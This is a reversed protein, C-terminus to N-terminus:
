EQKFAEQLEEYFYKPNYTSKLSNIYENELRKSEMEQVTGSVEPKAEEFTKLRSPEKVNLKFISYGAGNKFPASFDGPNQLKDAERSLVSSNIDVLGYNGAKTKFGPRETYKIAVSDFNEGSQLLSYYHNILSDKASYIESFSIKDPMVYNTKNQEYYEYLKTSDVSLKNWVEEEQLKFIYIGDRYDKMLSAFQPDRKDLNMADEELLIEGSIKKLAPEFAESKLDKSAYEKDQGIRQLVSIADFNKGAASFLTMKSLEDKKPHEEGFHFGDSNALLFDVTQQILQYNYKARLSDVFINYDDNFRGQRYVKKLNEKESDFPPIPQKDTCKIIHYGFNTKVVGSMQGIELKFAVEDFEKVMMRREFFGLDGGKDKSGPDMSYQKAVDEFSEGANLKALVTDMKLKATVSDIEGAENQFSILIHSAKIKAIRPKRDTVKIIHFGFKTQVLAPNVQGVPTNYAADEFEWPLQGGTIYFIDGGSVKSFNDDSHRRVLTEYDAGNKISDLYIQAVQKLSDINSGATARVMLHSVRIEEKRREYLKEVAPEVVQKELIYSSGVKRQYDTLEDSLSQNGDFGRVEADRLKMKFNTYLDLFNQLKPLSDNKAEEVGGVNKAYAGEFEKMTIETDGFKSVVIESHEPSCSSLLFGFLGVILFLFRSQM